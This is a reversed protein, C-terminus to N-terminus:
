ANLREKIMTRLISHLEPNSPDHWRDEGVDFLVTKDWMTLSVSQQSSNDLCVISDAWSGLLDRVQESNTEYGVAIADHRFETKLLWALAGSRVIGQKCVCLIKM